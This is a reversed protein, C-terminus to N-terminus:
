FEPLPGEGAPFTQCAFETSKNDPHNFPKFNAKEATETSEFVIKHEDAIKNAEESFAEYYINERRDGIFGWPTWHREPSEYRFTYGPHPPNVVKIINEYLLYLHEHEHRSMTRVTITYPRGEKPLPPEFGSSTVLMFDEAPACVINAGLIRGVILRKEDVPNHKHRRIAKSRSKLKTYFVADKIILKASLHKKAGDRIKIESDSHWDDLDPMWRFDENDKRSNKYAKGLDKPVIKRIEIKVKQDPPCEHTGIHAGNKDRIEIKVPWHGAKLFAIEVAKEDYNPCLVSLGDIFINAASPTLQPNDPTEPIRTGTSRFQAKEEDSEYNRNDNTETDITNTM